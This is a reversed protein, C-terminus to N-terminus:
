LQLTMPQLSFECYIRMQSKKQTTTIKIVEAHGRIELLLKEILLTRLIEVAIDQNSKSVGKVRQFVAETCWFCGGGLVLTEESNEDDILKM